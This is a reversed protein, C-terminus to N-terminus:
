SVRRQATSKYTEILRELDRLDFREEGAIRIALIQM